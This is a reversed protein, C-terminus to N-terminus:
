FLACCDFGNARSSGSRAQQGIDDALESLHYEHHHGSESGAQLRQNALEHATQVIRDASWTALLGRAGETMCNLTSLAQGFALGRALMAESNSLTNSPSFMEFLLGATCWDGAGATDHVYPMRFASLYSWSRQAQSIRFRLGQAGRTQIEVAGPSLDFSKLGDLREDSYKVIGATKVARAFLEADDGVASPEFVVVTGQRAYREALKVGLHTPRDLYFVRAAPLTEAHDALWHEEDWWPRRRTGCAPCAFSFRHTADASQLQHQFVVPTSGKCSRRLHRVDAGVREFDGLITRAAADDGIVGVPTSAWGLAGLIALVNGASGGLAPSAASGDLRLIVDLAFLGTGAISREPIRM